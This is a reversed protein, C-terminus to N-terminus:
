GGEVDQALALQRRLGDGADIAGDPVGHALRQAQGEEPQPAAVAVRQGENGDAAVVVARGALQGRLHLEVPRVAQGPALELRAAASAWAKPTCIACWSSGCIAACKSALM